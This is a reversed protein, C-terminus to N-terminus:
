PVTYIPDSFPFCVALLIAFGTFIANAPPLPQPIVTGILLLTCRCISKPRVVLRIGEGLVTSISPSCLIGALRKLSDVLKGHDRFERFGRAQEKLITSISEVSNCEQLQRAFPHDVLSNGTRDKYDQLAANFLAQLTSLESMDFVFLFLTSTPPLLGLTPRSLRYTSNPAWMTPGAGGVRGVPVLEFRFWVNRM